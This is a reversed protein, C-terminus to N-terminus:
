RAPPQGVLEIVELGCEGVHVHDGDAVRCRGCPYSPPTAGGAVTQAATASVVDELAQWHDAHAHTTV